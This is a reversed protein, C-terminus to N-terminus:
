RNERGDRGNKYHHKDPHADVPEGVSVQTFPVPTAMREIGVCGAGLGAATAAL